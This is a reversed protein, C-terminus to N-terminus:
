ALEPFIEAISAHAMGSASRVVRLSLALDLAIVSRHLVDHLKLMIVKWLLQLRRELVKSALKAQEGILVVIPIVLREAVHCRSIDVVAPLVFHQGFSRLDLSPRHFSSLLLVQGLLRGLRVDM